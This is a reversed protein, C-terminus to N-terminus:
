FLPGKTFPNDQSSRPRIKLFTERHSFLSTYSADKTSYFVIRRKKIAIIQDIARQARKAYSLRTLAPYAPTKPSGYSFVGVPSTAASAEGTPTKGGHNFKSTGQLRNAGFSTSILTQVPWQIPMTM